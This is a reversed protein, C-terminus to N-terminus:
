THLTNTLLLLQVTLNVAQDQYKLCTGEEVFNISGFKVRIVSCSRIFREMFKRERKYYGEDSMRALKRRGFKLAEKSEKFIQGLGGGLIALVMTWGVFFFIFFGAKVLSFSSSSKDKAMALLPLLSAPQGLVGGCICVTLILRHHHPENMLKELLQLQRYAPVLESTLTKLKGVSKLKQQFRRILDTLTLTTLIQVGGLQFSGTSIAFCAMWSNFLIVPVKTLLKIPESICNSRCEPLVWYFALSSKCPDRFHIGACFVLAFLPGALWIVTVVIWYLLRRLSPGKSQNKNQSQGAEALSEELIGNIYRVIENGEWNGIQLCVGNAFNTNFGFIIFILDEPKGGKSAAAAAAQLVLCSTFIFHLLRKWKLKKLKTQNTILQLEKTQSNWTFNLSGLHNTLCCNREFSPLEELLLM